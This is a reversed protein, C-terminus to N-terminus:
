HWKEVCSVAAGWGVNQHNPKEWVTRGLRFKPSRTEGKGHAEALRTEGIGDQSNAERM